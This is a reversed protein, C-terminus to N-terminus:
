LEIKIIVLTGLSKEQISWLDRYKIEINYQDKNLLKIREMNAKTAFSKNKLTNSKNIESSKERGIGNDRVYIHIINPETFKFHIILKKEKESHSLGHLIANEVYPQVLMTPIKLAKLDEINTTKISFNLDKFRMQQIELYLKLSDIEEDLTITNVESFELIKRTLKSFKSLYSSAEKSENMFIFSQINNIANFFFHPNMQSKILQLRSEKLSNELQLRKIEKLNKLKITKITKKYILFGITSISFVLTIIFWTRRWLPPLVNFNVVSSSFVETKNSNKIVFGFSYKGDKLNSFVIESQNFHLPYLTENLRYYLEFEETAGFHILDFSIKLQNDQEEFHFENEFDLQNQNLSIEHIFIKPVEAEKNNYKIPIKILKEKTICFVFDNVIEFDIIKHYKSVQALPILKQNSIQYITKESSLYIKNNYKKINKFSLAYEFPHLNKNFLFYLKGDNSIGVLSDSNCLIKKFYIDKQNALIRTTKSNHHKYLGRNTAIFLARISPDFAISKARINDLIRFNYPTKLQETEQTSLIAAHGTSATAITNDDLAIIQKTSFYNRVIKKNKLDEIYLGNGTFFNFHEFLDFNLQLIQQNEFTDFYLESSLDEKHSYIKGQNTGTFIRSGKKSISAFYDGNIKFEKSNLDHVIFIGNTPSSVWLRSPNTFIFSSVNKNKLFPTSNIPKLQYNFRYIGNKTFCWIENDLLYLNQLTEPIELSGETVSGKSDILIIKPNTKSRDSLAFYDTNSFSIFSNFKQKLPIKVEIAGSKKDLIYIISDGAFIKDKTNHCFQNNKKEFFVESTKKLLNIKEIGKSSTRYLFEKEIFFNNNGFNDIFDALKLQNDEVYFYFGDFSQFWIRGWDDEKLFTGSNSFNNQTTFVRYEIGNLRILGIDSSCWIFGKSDKYIDYINESPLGSELGINETYVDQSFTSISNFILFFLFTLRM